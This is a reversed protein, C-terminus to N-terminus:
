ITLSTLPVVVEWMGQNAYKWNIGTRTESICFTPPTSYASEPREFVDDHVATDGDSSVLSNRNSNYGGSSIASTPRTTYGPPPTTPPTSEAVDFDNKEPVTRGRFDSIARRLSPIAPVRSQLAVPLVNYIMSPKRPESYVSSIDSDIDCAQEYTM